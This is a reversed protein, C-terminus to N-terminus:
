RYFKENKKQNKYFFLFFLSSLVLLTLFLGCTFIKQPVFEIYFYQTNTNEDKQNILWSNSYSNVLFHKKTYQNSPWSLYHKDIFQNQHSFEQIEEEFYQGIKNKEEIQFNNTPSLKWQNSFTESFILLYPEKIESIEVEYKTPSISSFKIKPPKSNEFWKEIPEGIFVIESPNQSSHSKINFSFSFIQEGNKLNKEGVKIWSLSDKTEKPASFSDNDGFSLKSSELNGTKIYIKYQGTKPIIIKFKEEGSASDIKQPLVVIKSHSIIQNELSKEENIKRQNLDQYLFFASRTKINPLTLFQSFIDYFGDQEPKQPISILYTEEPIYIRPLFYKPKIEYAILKEFITSSFNENNELIYNYEESRPAYVEVEPKGYYKGSRPTYSTRQDLHLLITKINFWGLAKYSSNSLDSNYTSQRFYNELFNFVRSYYSDFNNIIEPKEHFATDIPDLNTQVGKEWQYAIPGQFLPLHLLRFLEPQKKIEEGMKYYYNPIIAKSGPMSIGDSSLTKGSWIPYGIVGIIILFSFIIFYLSKRIALKKLFLYVEFIGLSSFISILLSNLHILKDSGHRWFASYPLKLILYNIKEFPPSGQKSLFVLFLLIIWFSFLIKKNQNKLPFIFLPSLFLFIVPYFSFFRIFPYDLIQQWDHYSDQNPGGGSWLEQHTLQRFTNSLNTYESSGVFTQLSEEIKGGYTAGWYQEKLGQFFNIEWWLNLIGFCFGFILFFSLLKIRVERNKNLLFLLGFFFILFFPIVVMNNSAFAGFVLFTSIISFIIGKKITQKLSASEINKIIFVLFFLFIPTIAFLHMQGSPRYWVISSAFYSFCYCSVILLRLVKKNPNKGFLSLSLLWTGFGALFFYFSLNFRHLFSLSLGTKSLIFNLLFPFYGMQDALQYGTGQLYKWVYYRSTWQNKFNFGLITDVGKVVEGDKLWTFPLLSFVFIIVLEILLYLPVKSLFKHNKM